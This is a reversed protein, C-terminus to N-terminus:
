RVREGLRLALLLGRAQFDSARITDVVAMSTAVAKYVDLRTLERQSIESEDRERWRLGRLRLRLRQWLLSMLAGRPTAPLRVGGQGLRARLTRFGRDLHGCALLQEAARRQCDLSTAASAGASAVLFEEAAEVGRGANVLAEALEIRLNRAAPENYSGLR